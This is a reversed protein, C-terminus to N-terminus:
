KRLLDDLVEKSRKVLMDRGGRAYVAQAREVLSPMKVRAFPPLHHPNECFRRLPEAARSWVFDGALKRSGERLKQNLARDDLLRSIAGVWADIDQYPLAFGAQRAEITEALQDGGTTLVPLGAWLYDLIRTRFAFRTEPLDFHASVAIDADLLYNVRQEYPVWSDHFIVRSDLVGLQRAHQRARVSMEMLPVQPNPSRWGMFFLKINPRTRALRAVAEIVTVPDFWQWIGGGWLLVQDGGAIGPVNGKLGPGTRRPAESPLGFPVVDILKRFSPDFRYMEPTLRGIACYRGLWYDRQRESACISFDAAIMHQELVQHMLRYSASSSLPDDAYQALLSLLYPDYLDLVLHKGRRALGPYPKLVNAQLYIIECEDAIAYLRSRSLGTALQLNAPWSPDRPLDSPRPSFLTVGFDSSLQRALEFARIAPGAMQQSIPELTVCLIKRAAM